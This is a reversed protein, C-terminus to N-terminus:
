CVAQATSLLFDTTLREMTAEDVLKMEVIVASLSPQVLKQHVLLKALQEETMLGLDIAIEGFLRNSDIQENLILTVQKMTLLGQQLALRGIPATFEARRTNARDIDAADIIKEDVLHAVFTDELKSLIDM